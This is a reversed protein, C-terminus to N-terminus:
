SNKLNQALRGFNNLTHETYVKARIKELINGSINLHQLGKEFIKLLLEGVLLGAHGVVLKEKLQYVHQTSVAMKALLVDNVM